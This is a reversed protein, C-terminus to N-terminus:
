RDRRGRVADEIGPFLLALPAKGVGRVRVQRLHLWWVELFGAEQQSRGAGAAAFVRRAAGGGLGPPPCRRAAGRRVGEGEFFNWLRGKRRDASGDLDLLARPLPVAGSRGCPARARPAARPTPPPEGGPAPCGSVPSRPLSLAPHPPVHYRSIKCKKLGGDEAVAAAVGPSKRKKKVPM